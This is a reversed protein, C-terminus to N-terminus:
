RPGRKGLRYEDEEWPISIPAPRLALQRKEQIRGAIELIQAIKPFFESTDIIAAIAQELVELDFKGLREFYVEMTPTELQERYAAALRGICRAFDLRNM